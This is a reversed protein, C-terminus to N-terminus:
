YIYTSVGFVPFKECHDMALFSFSFAISDFFMSFNAQIDDFSLTTNKGILLIKASALHSILLLSLILISARSM